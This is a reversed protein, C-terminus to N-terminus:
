VSVNFLFTAGPPIRGASCGHSGWSANRRFSIVIVPCFTLSARFIRTLVAFM